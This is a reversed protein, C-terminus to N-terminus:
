AKIKRYSKRGLKNIFEEYAPNGVKTVGKAKSVVKHISRMNYPKTTKRTAYNPQDKCFYDVGRMDYLGPGTIGKKNTVHSGPRYKWSNKCEPPDYVTKNGVRKITKCPTLIRNPKKTCSSIDKRIGRLPNAIKGQQARTRYYNVLVRKAAEETLPRKNKKGYPKYTKTSTRKYIYASRNPIYSPDSQRRRSAEVMADKYSSGTEAQVKKVEAIWAKAKDRAAPTFAGGEQSCGCGGYQYDDIEYDM